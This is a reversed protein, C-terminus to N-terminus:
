KSNTNWKDRVELNQAKLEKLRKKSHPKLYKGSDMFDDFWVLKKSKHKRLLRGLVQLLVIASSGGALYQLYKVLPLNKGEKILLSSVLIDVEGMKFKNLKELRDKVNVHIYEVKLEPFKKRIKKYIYETHNHYRCIILAPLRGKSIMLKLRKMAIKNRTKNYILGQEEEEKYTGDGIYDGGKVMTIIPKSSFGKDILEKNSISHVIPGFYSIIKMDKSKDKHKGLTGSMGLKIYANNLKNVVWKFTSAYHCEDVIGMQFQRLQENNVRSLSQIMCVMLNNWKIGTPNGKGKPGIFGIDKPFLQGLEEIAQQYIHLRNVIFITSPKNYTKYLMAALLNKGANTAQYVLGRNFPVDGVCNNIINQIGEIQYDRPVMNGIKTPIKGPFIPQRYDEVSIEYGWENLISYVLPAMGIEFNGNERVYHIYGDWQHSRWASSYFYGLAKIRFHKRLKDLTELDTLVKGLNNNVLQIKAIM